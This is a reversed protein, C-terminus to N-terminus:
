QEGSEPLKKTPSLTAGSVLGPEGPASSDTDANAKPTLIDAYAKNREDRAYEVDGDLDRFAFPMRSRQLTYGRKAMFWLFIDIVYCQGVVWSVDKAYEHKDVEILQHVAKFVDKQDHFDRLRPPLYTGSTM